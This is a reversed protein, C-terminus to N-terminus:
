AAVDGVRGMNINLENVFNPSHYGFFLLVDIRPM